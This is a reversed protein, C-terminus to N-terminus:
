PRQEYLKGLKGFLSLSKQNIHRSFVQKKSSQSPKHQEVRIEKSKNNCGRCELLVKLTNADHKESAGAVVLARYEGYVEITSLSPVDL